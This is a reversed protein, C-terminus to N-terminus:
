KRCWPMTKRRYRVFLTVFAYVVFAFDLFISHAAAIFLDLGIGYSPDKADTFLAFLALEVSCPILVLMFFSVSLIAVVLSLEPRKITWFAVACATLFLLLILYPHGVRFFSGLFGTFFQYYNRQGLLPLFGVAVVFVFLLLHIAAYVTSAITYVRDYLRM